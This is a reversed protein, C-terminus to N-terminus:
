RPAQLQAAWTLMNARKLPMPTIQSDPVWRPAHQAARAFTPMNLHCTQEFGVYVHVPQWTRLQFNFPSSIPFATPIFCHSVTITYFQIPLTLRISRLSLCKFLNASTDSWDPQSFIPRTSSLHSADLYASFLQSSPLSIILRNLLTLFLHVSILATSFLQCSTLLRSFLPSVTLNRQM